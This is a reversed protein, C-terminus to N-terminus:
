FRHGPESQRNDDDLARVAGKTPDFLELVQIVVITIEADIEIGNIVGGDRASEPKAGSLHSIGFIHLARNPFGDRIAPWIEQVDGGLRRYRLRWRHLSPSGSLRSPGDRGSPM